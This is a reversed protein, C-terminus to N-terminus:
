LERKPPCSGVRRFILRKNPTPILRVNKFWLQYNKVHERFLAVHQTFAPEHGLRELHHLGLELKQQLHVAAQFFKSWDQEFALEDVPSFFGRKVFYTQQTRQTLELFRRVTVALNALDHPLTASPTAEHQEQHATSRM